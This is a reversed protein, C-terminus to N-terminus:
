SDPALGVLGLGVLGDISASNKRRQYEGLEDDSQGSAWEHLRPREGSYTLFPVAYGCSDGVKQVSVDIIARRGPNAAFLGALSPDDLQRVTAIGFVRVIRPPGDFACWMLTIRGNEQAHAITEVGSGTLDQYAVRNPGLIRLTDYGKPSLNVHGDAALPATAVFFLHQEAIWAAVGPEIREYFRGM